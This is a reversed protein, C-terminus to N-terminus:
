ANTVIEAYPGPQSESTANAATLRVRVTEGIPLSSLTAPPILVNGVYVYDLEQGIVQRYIKLFQGAPAPTFTVRIQGAPLAELMPQGPPTLEEGGGGEGELVLEAVSSAPGELGGSVATVKVRITQGEQYPGLTADSDSFTTPEAVFNENGAGIAVYVRYHDANPVDAWDAFIMANPSETLTLGEPGDPTTEVAPPTLGFAYWRPDDDNILQSLEEILGRMRRELSKRAAEWVTRAQAVTMVAAHAASRADSLATYIAAAQAATVNLPANERAPNATFYDRQLAVLEMREALISPTALSSVFGVSIWATSWQNGLVPILVNKAAGIFAKANADAATQASTAEVKAQRAEGYAEYAVRAALLDPRIRAATNQLLGIAVENATAGDAMDEALAFLAVIKTPIQNRAM